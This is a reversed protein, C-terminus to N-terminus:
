TLTASRIAVTDMDELVFRYGYSALHALCAEKDSESLLIHEYRIIEPKITNLDISKIIQFDFGETDIQLLDIREPNGAKRLLTELRYCPVVEAVLDSRRHGPTLLFNPNASATSVPGGKRSYITIEGDEPGVAANFLSLQPRDRYLDELREFAAKQPEVLIGRWDDALIIDRLPDGSLGDFAGLQVFYFGDPQRKAFRAVVELLNSIEFEPHAKLFQPKRLRVSKPSTRIRGLTRLNRIQRFM